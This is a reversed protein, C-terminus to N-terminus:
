DNPDIAERVVVLACPLLLIELGRAGVVRKLELLGVEDVGVESGQEVAGGDHIVQGAL